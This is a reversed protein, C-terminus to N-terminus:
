GEWRPPNLACPTGTLWCSLVRRRGKGSLQAPCGAPSSCRSLPMAVKRKQWLLRKKIEASVWSSAM